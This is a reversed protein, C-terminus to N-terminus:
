TSLFTRRIFYNRKSEYNYQRIRIRIRIRIRRSLRRAGGTSQVGTGDLGDLGDLGRRNANFRQCTTGRRPLVRKIYAYIFIHMDPGISESDSGRLASVEIRRNRERARHVNSRRTGRPQM